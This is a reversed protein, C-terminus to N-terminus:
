RWDDDTWKMNERRERLLIQNYAYELGFALIAFLILFVIIGVGGMSAVCGIFLCISSIFLCGNKGTKRYDSDHNRM